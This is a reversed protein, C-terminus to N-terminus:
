GEDRASATLALSCGPFQVISFWASCFGVPRSGGGLLEQSKLFSRVLWKRRLSQLLIQALLSVILLPVPIV